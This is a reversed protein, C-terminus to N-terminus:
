PASLFIQVGFYRSSAAMQHDIGTSSRPPPEPPRPRRAAAPGAPPSRVTGSPHGAPWPPHPRAFDGVPHSDVAAVTRRQSAPARSVAADADGTFRGWPANAGASAGRGVAPRSRRSYTCSPKDIAATTARRSAVVCRTRVHSSSSLMGIRGAPARGPARRGPLTRFGAGGAASSRRRRSCSRSERPSNAAM